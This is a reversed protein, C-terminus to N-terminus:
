GDHVATKNADDRYHPDSSIANRLPQLEQASFRFTLCGDWRQDPDLKSRAIKLAEREPASKSSGAAKAAVLYFAGALYGMIEDDVVLMPARKGEMNRGAFITDLIAHTAEHILLAKEDWYTSGFDNDSAIVTNTGPDYYAVRGQISSDIRTKIKGEHARVALHYFVIPAVGRDKHIFNVWRIPPSMLAGILNQKLSM